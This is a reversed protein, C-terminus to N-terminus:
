ERPGAAKRLRDAIARGIGQEAPLVALVVDAGHADADRLRSYLTHADDDLDGSPVLAVVRKGEQRLETSRPALMAAPVIEVRAKPAYHSLLMGPARSPGSPPALDGGVAEQLQELSVGGPRLVTPMEGTLEVITSELGIRCPGGDLVFDVDEGLDAAVAAATTPSVHGFRNASPAALGGRFAALLALALPHAPVRLGVTDRGGTVEDVVHAARRLVMTLPGPWFRHALERAAVPIEVAWEDLLDASALHVIVPHDAPRGKVAFLRRLAAPNAADAGLGYVTETPFAVLGGAALLAVAREVGASTL